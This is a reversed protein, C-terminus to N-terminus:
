TAFTAKPAFFYRMALGFSKVFEWLFISRATRDLYAM